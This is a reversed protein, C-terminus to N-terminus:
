SQKRKYRQSSVTEVAEAGTNMPLMKDMGTLECLKQAFEGLKDTYFARSPVDMLDLQDMMAKKIRANLHGASVASYASLFDLYKNGEADWVWVDEAKVLVVPLPHYNQALYKNEREIYSKSDM